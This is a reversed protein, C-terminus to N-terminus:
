ENHQQLSQEKDDKSYRFIRYKNHNNTGVALHKIGRLKNGVTVAKKFKKGFSKPDKIKELEYVEPALGDILSQAKRIEDETLTLMELIREDPVTM